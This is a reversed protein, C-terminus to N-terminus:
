AVRRCLAWVGTVAYHLVGGWLVLGFLSVALHWGSQHEVRAIRIGFTGLIAALVAGTGTTPLAADSLSVLWVFRQKATALFKKM